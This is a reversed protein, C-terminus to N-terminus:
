RKEKEGDSAGLTFYFAAGKDIEGEAWVRGGHKHVIRQVTALGIGTGEFDEQRHLRQFVGFLKDAHKMSFGVGNDRVVIVTEGNQVVQNVGIRASQRPRTYKVANSLLNVFVYEMLSPDCEVFPLDGIQWEIQRQETELSFDRVVKEVISKLGVLQLAPERRGLHALNLLEDVLRGMNSAAERIRKLYHQANVPLQVGYEELLIKSFGDLHRLPARLDHSVSYTFAELEQNLANLEEVRRALDERIRRMETIDRFLTIGGALRGDPGRLPSGSVSIWAGEQEGTRRMYMEVDQCSEGRIARVLPLQEAPFPTVTDPLFVNYHQSWQSSPQETAGRALIAEAAPNFVLFKEQEDAVVLGDKMNNFVSQLLTRQQQLEEQAHKRETIDRNAEIVYAGGKRVLVMRTEVTIPRGDRTIHELEGEWSGERELFSVFAEVGGPTKTQLLNHSVLGVAEARTFGYLREAGRNWYTIPGNWDWALVADYTQDILAAQRQRETLDKNILMTASGILLLSFLVGAFIVSLASNSSSRMAQNRIALLRNEEDRMAAINSEARNMAAQGTELAAARDFNQRASSLANIDSSTINMFETISSQLVDIRQQQAANDSTLQYVRKLSAEVTKTRESYRQTFSKDGTVLYGRVESQVRVLDLSVSQLQELVEHTHVVWENNTVLLSIRKYSIVGILVLFLLAVFFSSNTLMRASVRM